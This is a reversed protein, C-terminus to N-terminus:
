QERAAMVFGQVISQSFRSEIDQCVLALINEGTTALVKHRSRAPTVFTGRGPNREVYGEVELDRLAQRVSHRSVGYSAMLELETPVQAGESLEGDEIATKLDRKIEVYVPLRKGSM